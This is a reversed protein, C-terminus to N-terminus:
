PFACGFTQRGFLAIANGAHGADGRECNRHEAVAVLGPSPQASGLVPEAVLSANIDQPRLIAAPADLRQQQAQPVSHGGSGPYALNSSVQKARSQHFAHGGAGSCQFHWTVSLGGEDGLNHPRALDGGPLRDEGHDLRDGGV